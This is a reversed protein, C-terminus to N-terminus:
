QGLLAKLHEIENELNKIRDDQKRNIESLEQVAKVLPVVFEAYRLGYLDKENKPSDVGSFDFGVERAAVEVEQAIFGTYQIAEKENRAQLDLNDPSAIYPNGNEDRRQDETLYSALKHVDLHYTIPRLKMIFELGSVNERIDKKYRIDSLNTWGAYGGISTVSSNGVRVQNGNTPRCNFGFGAINYLNDTDAYAYYGVFTGSSISSRLDGASYGIATNSHGTTNDYLAFMGLATNNYGTTNNFLTLSGTATNKYGITNYSLANYGVATNDNGSTNDFLALHGVATNSTGNTNFRLASSGNATNGSGITNSYLAGEGTATNNTGTTNGTLAYHGLATNSNATNNMLTHHGFATNENGTSNLFLSFNGYAVNEVGTTNSQLAARGTAVNGNGSTNSELAQLGIATNSDGTTNDLLANYGVATNGHATTNGFLANYGVATNNNGDLNSFLAWKGTATNNAGTTNNYLAAFGTATNSSGAINNLLAAYGIATNENGNQNFGLTWKGVATNSTGTENNILAENGIATNDSGTTNVFLAQWGIATNNSGSTNLRLASHGVATNNHATNELLAFHGIATNHNGTTNLFLSFNGYAVNEVGTTNNQLAARGTAVNDIGSTNSELAQLGIAINSNGTTNYRLTGSGYATNYNGETNSNLSSWGTATNYTGTTNANLASVGLATNTEISGGGKGIKLGNILADSGSVDLKAAPSSTGIGVRGTRGIDGATNTEGTWTPDSEFITVPEWTAYGSTDSVLVYGDDPSGGRIRILGDIDLKATPSETGIGVNGTRGIDGTTNTEGTWTPDSEFITVPEWTAYGSTDSVLVYGDDPEGGRIRILGDIDLKATPTDTGIGVNGESIITKAAGSIQFTNAPVEPGTSFSSLNVAFSYNGIARSSKGMATSYHGSATNSFGIATSRSGSAIPFDGLAVSMSGSAVPYCGLAISVDGSAEPSEGLAVSGYGINDDDLTDLWGTSFYGARLAYRRPYFFMRSGEVAPSLLPGEDYMGTVLLNADDVHLHEEPSETGIGVKGIRGIDGTTDTDGTWTPDSEVSHLAYPSSTIRIRPTMEMDTGISVGLWRSEATFYSETLPTAEGLNIQFLGDSVSVTRDEIWLAMGGTDNDYVSFRMTLNDTISNGTVDTLRGQFSILDPINGTRSVERASFQGYLLISSMMLFLISLYKKM